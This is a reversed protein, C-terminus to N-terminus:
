SQFPTHDSMTELVRRAKDGRADIVVGIAQRLLTLRSDAGIADMGGPSRALRDFDAALSLCRERMQLFQESLVDPSPKMAAMTRDGASSPVMADRTKFALNRASRYPSLDTLM